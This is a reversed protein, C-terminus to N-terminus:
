AIQVSQRSRGGMWEPHAQYWDITRRLGEQLSLEPEWGTLAHLKSYDVWQRDIEGSPTGSGRIDPEVAGGVLRSILEVVELVSHPNGGGANFAEGAAAGSDACAGPDHALADWLALYAAVADEVYLFDRQPTGDSRIVPARGSLAAVVAEPVLRSGNVDGGGYVNALRTVAVPLEWTCWYSRSLTDAAAKSAEYPSRPQLAMGEHYPLSPQPGYAKDSSAVIVCEVGYHRCAELVTWTGRINTEFTSLPSRRAAGVITQAALHFVSQIEYEALARAVLGDACIDGEVVAVRSELGMTVLASRLPADRRIVCVDARATLLEGVLWSGILGYAGTVLVRHGALKANPRAGTVLDELTCRREDV